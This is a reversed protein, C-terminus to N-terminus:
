GAAAQRRPETLFLLFAAGAIIAGVTATAAWGGREYSFTGLISGAAAAMFVVTMYVANIRGRADPAISYLLRQGLVQNIQTAADLLVAAVALMLLAKVAGAWGAVACAIM